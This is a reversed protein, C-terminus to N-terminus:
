RPSPRHSPASSPAPADVTVKLGACPSVAPGPTVTVAVNLSATRLRSSLTRVSLLACPSTDSCFSPVPGSRATEPRTVTLPPLVTM